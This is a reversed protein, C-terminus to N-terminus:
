YRILEQRDADWFRRIVDIRARIESESMRALSAARDYGPVTTAEILPQYYAIEAEEDATLMSEDFEEPEPKGRLEAETQANELAAEKIQEIRGEPGSITGLLDDLEERADAAEVPVWTVLDAMAVEEAQIQIMRLQGVKELYPLDAALKAELHNSIAEVQAAVQEGLGTFYGEPDTLEAYRSPANAQWWAQAKHGYHNM